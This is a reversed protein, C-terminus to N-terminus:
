SEKQERQKIKKIQFMIFVLMTEPVNPLIKRVIDETNSCTNENQETNKLNIEMRMCKKCIPRGRGTIPVVYLRRTSRLRMEETGSSDKYTLIEEM